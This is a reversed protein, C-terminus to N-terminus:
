IIQLKTEVLTYFIGRDPSFTSGVCGTSMPSALVVMANAATWMLLDGDEDEYVKGVKLGNIGYSDRPKRTDVVEM